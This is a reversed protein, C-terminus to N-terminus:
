RKAARAVALAEEGLAPLDAGDPVSWYPMRGHKHSGAAEYRPMTEDGVRLYLDGEPSVIGFMVGSEFIGYGGFMKKTTVDGLPGLTTTAEEAMAAAAETHKAGKQGM